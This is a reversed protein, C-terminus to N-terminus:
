RQDLEAALRKPAVLRYAEELMAGLEKWDPADSGVTDLYVGLWDAFVGSASPTPQFFREPEATSLEAAAGSPARCWLAVRDDSGFEVDHFRCFSKSRVYFSPAHHSVREEVGPLSLVVSRLKNLM